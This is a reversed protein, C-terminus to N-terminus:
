PLFEIIISFINLYMFMIQIISTGTDMHFIRSFQFTHSDYLLSASYQTRWFKLWSFLGYFNCCQILHTLTYTQTLTLTHKLTYAHTHLTHTPKQISKSAHM